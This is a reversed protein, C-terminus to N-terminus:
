EVAARGRRAHGSDAVTRHHLGPDPGAGGTRVVRGGGARRLELDAGGTGARLRVSRGRPPVAQPRGHHRHATRVGARRGHRHRSPPLIEGSANGCYLDLRGTASRVPTPVALVGAKIVDREQRLRVPQAFAAGDNVAVYLYGDEM